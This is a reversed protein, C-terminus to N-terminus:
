NQSFSQEAEKVSKALLVLSINLQAMFLVALLWGSRGGTLWYGLAVEKNIKVMNRERTPQKRRPSEYDNKGNIVM